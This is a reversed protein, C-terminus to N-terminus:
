DLHITIRKILKANIKLPQLEEVGAAVKCGSDVCVGMDVGVCCCVGVAVNVGVGCDM